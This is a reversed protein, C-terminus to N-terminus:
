PTALGYSQMYKNVIQKIEGSSGLKDAAKKLARLMEPTANKKSVYLIFNNQGLILPPGLEEPKIGAMYAGYYIGASSGVGADLRRVSLMKAMIVYDNVSYRNIATDSDFAPVYSSTRIVGVTRGHLERLEHYTTGKPGVLIVPMTVIAAVPHAAREMQENGFRLVFDANGHELEFATRPYPVLTNTYPLGAVEAIRNSIEYMMGTPRHDSDFYGWPPGHITIIKLPASAAPRVPALIAVTLFALIRRKSM